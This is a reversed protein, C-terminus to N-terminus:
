EHASAMGAGGTPSIGAFRGGDFRVGTHCWRCRDQALARCTAPMSRGVTSRWAPAEGSKIAPETAPPEGSRPSPPGRSPLGHSRGRRSAVAPGAAVGAGDRRRTGVPTGLAEVRALGHGGTANGPKCAVSGHRGRVASPPPGQRGEGADDTVGAGADPILASALRRLIHPLKAVRHRSCTPFGGHDPSSAAASIPWRRVGASCFVFSCTARREAPATEALPFTM